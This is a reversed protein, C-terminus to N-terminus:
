KMKSLEARAWDAQPSTPYKSIIERMKSKADDLFELRIYNRASYALQAAPSETRPKVDAAQDRQTGAPTISNYGMHYEYSKYESVGQYTVNFNLRRGSALPGKIKVGDLAQKSGNPLTLTVYLLMDDIPVDSNNLANGSFTISKGADVTAKEITAAVNKNAPADGQKEKADIAPMGKVREIIKAMIARVEPAESEMQKTLSDIWEKREAETAEGNQVRMAVDMQQNAQQEKEDRVRQQCASCPVRRTQYVANHWTPDGLLRNASEDDPDHSWGADMVKVKELAFGTGGCKECANSAATLTIVILSLLSSRIKM